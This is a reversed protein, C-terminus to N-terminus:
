LGTGRPSGYTGAEERCADQGDQARRHGKGGQKLIKRGNQSENGLNMKKRALGLRANQIALM